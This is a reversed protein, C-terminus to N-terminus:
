ARRALLNCKPAGRLAAASAARVALDGAAYTIERLVAHLPGVRRLTADYPLEWREIM